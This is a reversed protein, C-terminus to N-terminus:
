WRRLEPPIRQQFEALRPGERHVRVGDRAYGFIPYSGLETARERCTLMVRVGRQEAFALARDLDVISGDADGSVNCSTCLPANYNRGQWIDDPAGGEFSNEIRDFLARHPGDLLLGQHTGGRMVPSDADPARFRLRIFTGTMPAFDDTSCFRDPMAAADAQALFRALSGIATGYNKGSLRTKCRDLQAAGAATPAALLVFVTPLQVIVPEHHLADILVDAAFPTELDMRHLKM